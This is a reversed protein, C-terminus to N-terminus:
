LSDMSLRGGCAGCRFRAVQVRRKRPFARGCTLCRLLWAPPRESAPSAWTGDSRACSRPLAGLRLALSKWRPGHGTGPGALAHAVEHRVTDQIEEWDCRHFIWEALDIRRRRYSCRGLSRSFRTNIVVTWDALGEESLLTTALELARHMLQDAPATPDRQAM